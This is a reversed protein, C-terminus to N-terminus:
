HPMDTNKFFHNVTADALVKKYFLPVAAEIAPAGGLKEYITQTM